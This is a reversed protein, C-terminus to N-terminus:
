MCLGSKVANVQLDQISENMRKKPCMDGHRVTLSCSWSPRQIENSELHTLKGTLQMHDQGGAGM